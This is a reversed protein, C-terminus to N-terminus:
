RDGLDHKAFQIPSLNISVDIDPWAAADECARRLAWEGIDHILGSKEAVPIFAGPSLSEGSEKTWRMLAEVGRTQVGHRDTIPQYLVSLENRELARSLAQEMARVPTEVSSLVQPAAAPASALDPGLHARMAAVTEHLADVIDHALMDIPPRADDRSRR